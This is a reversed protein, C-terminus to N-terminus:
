MHSGRAHHHHHEEQHHHMAAAAAATEDPVWHVLPLPALSLLNCVLLLTSLHEFNTSTIGALKTAAAGLASGIGAAANNLSMLSAYLTAEVGPPCLRACMVLTPMMLVQLLLLLPM